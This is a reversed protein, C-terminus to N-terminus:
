VIASAAASAILRASSRPQSLNESIPCEILPTATCCTSSRAGRRTRRRTPTAGTGALPSGSPSCSHASNVPAAALRSFRATITLKLVPLRSVGANTSAM